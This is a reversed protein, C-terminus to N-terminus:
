EPLRFKRYFAQGFRNIYLFINTGPEKKSIIERFQAVSEIETRGVAIIIDGPKIENRSAAGGRKVEKVLIGRSTTLEYERALSRSNKVLVMGLDLSRGNEGRLKYKMTEPEEGVEVKIRLKKSGRYLTLEMIDGPSSDAIERILDARSKTPKGNIKVIFDNRKLGAKKAPSNDEVKVIIIGAEPYDFEKADSESLAQISIGFWGRVVRGKTKLDGVVKKAMNSPIAFGIGVNGGSPAIIVSNIGIVKGKMNILPGGSNGRNIAADTQIYDEYQTIGTSLERGKASVIGATVSLDQYFPNGIALVWEGVEVQNSDGLTIFPLNKATIKLLALDTKPDTGIIKAKYEKKDFTIIRVKVAKKVVHNNTIIYGDSSILFGSGLGQVREPGRRPTEFFRDFFEDGFARGRQRLSESMVKVVAPRVKKVLPAFNTGPVNITEAQVVDPTLVTKNNESKQFYGFTLAFFIAGALFSLGAIFGIKRM